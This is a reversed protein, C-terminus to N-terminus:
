AWERERESVTTSSFWTAPVGQLQMKETGLLWRQQRHLWLKAGPTVCSTYDPGAWRCRGGSQSIDLVFEGGSQAAEPLRTTAFNERERATLSTVRVNTEDAAADFISPGADCSKQLLQRRQRTRRVFQAAGPEAAPPGLLGLLQRRQQMVAPHDDPLVFDALPVMPLRNRLHSLVSSPQEFQQVM